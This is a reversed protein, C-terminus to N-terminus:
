ARPNGAVSGCWGASPIASLDPRAGAPARRPHHRRADVRSSLSSTLISAIIWDIVSRSFRSGFRARGPASGCAFADSAPRTARFLGDGLEHLLEQEHALHHAAHAESRPMIPFIGPSLFDRSQARLRAVRSSSRCSAARSSCAPYAPAHSQRTHRAHSQRAHRAHPKRPGEARVPAAADAGRIRCVKGFGFLVCFFILALSLAIRTLLFRPLHASRALSALPPGPPRAFRPSRLSHRARLSPPGAPFPSSAARLATQPRLACM